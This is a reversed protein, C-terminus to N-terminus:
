LWRAIYQSHWVFFAGSFVHPIKGTYPSYIILCANHYTFFKLNRNWDLKTRSLFKGVLMAVLMTL